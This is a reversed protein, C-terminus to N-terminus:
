MKILKMIKLCLDLLVIKSNANASINSHAKNLEDVIQTVNDERIFPSFNKSFEAEEQTLYIMEQDRGSMVNLMFNERILRITYLFFHKQKERGLIALDDVWKIIGPIKGGYNLRMMSTFRTFNFDNDERDYLLNQAVFYNGNALRLINNIGEPSLESNKKLVDTMSQHDVKPIKVMQTRSLITPLLKDTNESVLLFLSNPPPEELIKLLKNAAVQNMKEPMWIVMVKYDSEYTKLNLIRIIEYSERRNIVGQKNEIGIREYWHPLGLYPNELIASRWENIFDSSIPDKTITKTTSVPYIFHLDPHILKEYKLCSACTDCSDYEGQNECSLFQAYAIALALKGCGGPGLFLQAHSIRGEVVTQTLRQKVADQGIINKFLMISSDRNQRVFTLLVQLLSGSLINFLYLVM